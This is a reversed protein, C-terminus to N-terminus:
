PLELDQGAQLDGPEELENLEAIADACDPDGYVDEAIAQLIDGAEVTYTGDDAGSCPGEDGGDGEVVEAPEEQEVEGEPLDETPDDLLGGDEEFEVAGGLQELAAPAAVAVLIGLALLAGVWKLPEPVRM